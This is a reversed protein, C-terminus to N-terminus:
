SKKENDYTHKFNSHWVYTNEEINKKKKKNREEETKRKSSKQAQQM